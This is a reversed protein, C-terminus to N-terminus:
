RTPVTSLLTKMAFIDNIFFFKALLSIIVGLYGILEKIINLHLSNVYPSPM